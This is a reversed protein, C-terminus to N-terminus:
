WMPQSVQRFLPDRPQTHFRVFARIDRFHPLFPGLNSNLVLLFDWVRKWNSGFDIVKSPRLSDSHMRNWFVNSMTNNARTYSWMWAAKLCHIVTVTVKLRTNALGTNYLRGAKVKRFRFCLVISYDNLSPFVLQMARNGQLLVARTKYTKITSKARTQIFSACGDSKSSM